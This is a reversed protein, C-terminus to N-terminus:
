LVAKNEDNKMRNTLILRQPSTWKSGPLLDVPSIIHLKGNRALNEQSNETVTESVATRLHEIFINAFNRLIWLFVGPFSDRDLRKSNNFYLFYYCFEFKYVSIASCFSSM